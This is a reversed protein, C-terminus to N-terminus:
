AYSESGDNLLWVIWKQLLVLEKKKRQAGLEFVQTAKNLVLRLEKKAGTKSFIKKNPPNLEFLFAVFIASPPFHEIQFPFLTMDEFGVDKGSELCASTFNLELFFSFCGKYSGYLQQKHSNILRGTHVRFHM